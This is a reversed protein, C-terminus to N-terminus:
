GVVYKRKGKWLISFILICIFDIFFVYKKLKTLSEIMTSHLNHRIKYNFNCYCIMYM